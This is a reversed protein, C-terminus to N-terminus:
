VMFVSDSLRSGPWKKACDLATLIHHARTNTQAPHRVAGCWRLCSLDAPLRGIVASSHNPGLVSQWKVLLYTLKVLVQHPGYHTVDATTQTLSGSHFKGVGAFQSICGHLYVIRQCNYSCVACTGVKSACSPHLYAWCVCTVAQLPM